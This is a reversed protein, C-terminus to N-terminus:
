SVVSLARDLQSVIDFIHRELQDEPTLLVLQKAATLHRDALEASPILAYAAEQIHDHIFSFSDSEDHRILGEDESLRLRSLTTSPDQGHVSSLTHLDVASGLLALDCLVEQVPPPLRELKRAILHAVNRSISKRRIADLDFTWRLSDPNFRLLKESAIESIFQVAFFPNGATKEHILEALANVNEDSTGLTDGVLLALDDKDIPGLEIISVPRGSNRLAAVTNVLPHSHGVEDDRYAGVILLHNLEPDAAIRELLEISASDLWQLDDMFLLLPHEAKAFVRLLSRFVLHFRAQTSQLDVMPATPQEGIVHVLEPILGVMLQASPGLAMLLERKWHALEKDSKTLLQRVLERFAQAFTSYPIDRKFQDFKGTAFFIQRSRLAGHVAKVLSSKGVGASGAVFVVESTGEQTVRSGIEILADLATSRGYLQKPLSVRDLIDNSGIAFPEISGTTTLMALCTKLDSELGRATQYRQDPDKALLKSVITDLATPINAVRESPLPPKQALHSHAWETPNGAEFPLSGTLLQFLTVGLSYLDSRNDTPRNMRGTQEPSMYAYTGLMTNPQTQTQSPSRSAFGFGALRVGTKRGVFVNSPNIDRHIVGQEHMRRVAGALECCLHISSKLDLPLSGREVVLNDLPELDDCDGHVLAPRGQYSTYAIAPIAWERQLQGSFDYEHQLRKAATSSPLHDNAVRVLAATGDLAQARLLAFTDDIRVLDFQNGSLYNSLPMQEQETVESAGQRETLNHPM